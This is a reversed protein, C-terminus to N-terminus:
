PTNLMELVDEESLVPIGLDLAKSLKSGASEGAVLYNTKASVSSQVKAGAQKLRQSMEERGMSPLTGTIVFSKGSFVQQEGATNEPNIISLGLRNFQELKQKNIDQQFFSAINHAVVPGIDPIKILEDEKAHIIPNLDLFHNALLEATTQGVEPIGLAYIFRALEVEKSKNIAQILKKASKEAMRDMLALTNADIEYLDTITKVIGKEVLQDVLKDGLGEIDMAKRSAFHKVSEKLQAPCILTGSCRAHTGSSDIDIPSHCVPCTEPLVIDALKIDTQRQESVVKVV